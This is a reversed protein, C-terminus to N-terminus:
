APLSSNYLVNLLHSATVADSWVEAHPAVNRANASLLRARANYTARPIAWM